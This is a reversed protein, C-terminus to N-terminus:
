VPAPIRDGAPTEILETSLRVQDYFRHGLRLGSNCAFRVPIEAPCAPMGRPQVEAIAKSIRQRFYAALRQQELATGKPAGVNRNSKRSLSRFRTGPFPRSRTCNRRNAGSPATMGTQSRRSRNRRT